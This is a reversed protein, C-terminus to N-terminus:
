TAPRSAAEDTAKDGERFLLKLRRPNEAAPSTPAKRKTISPAVYAPSPMVARSSGSSSSAAPPAQSASGSSASGSPPGTPKPTRSPERPVPTSPGASSHPQPAAAPPKAALSSEPYQNSGPIFRELELIITYDTPPPLRQRILQWSYNELCAKTDVYVDAEQEAVTRVRVASQPYQKGKRIMCMPCRWPKPAPSNAEDYRVCYGHFNYSCSNCTILRHGVHSGKCLCRSGDTALPMVEATFIFKPRRQAKKKQSTDQSAKTNNALVRHLHCLTLGYSPLDPRAKISFQMKYLKRMFHRTQPISTTAPPNITAETVTALFVDIARTLRDVYTIIIDMHKWALSYNRTLDPAARAIPLLDTFEFNRTKTLSGNWHHHDCFPCSGEICKSHFKAGCHDCQVADAQKEVTVKVPHPCICTCEPDTPPKDDEPRTNHVVDDVILKGQMAPEPTRYWPLKELWADHQVLQQDVIDFSPIMFMWLKKQVSNRM